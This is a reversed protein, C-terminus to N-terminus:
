GVIKVIEAQVEGTVRVDHEGIFVNVESRIGFDPLYIGPEVSFCTWPLIKRYDHTELNDMNAGAGHVEKGISHGTRHTFYQGYGRQSIYGRAADDVEYGRIEEGQRVRARVLEIGRDRAERVVEFVEQVQTPIEEGCYGVWTVDYYVGDPDDLKAWLDILVVDGWQIQRDQNSEPEYHPNSANANAAVIPGHDSVLGERTFRERIFSKVQYEGVSVGARLKQGILRFAEERIRDVRRAAELHRALNESTWTAEFRQILDAASVVEVGLERVLEVTGADVLSVQPLGCHPSYQMAVRRMGALLHKLGALHEQWSGYRQKSGPLSDLMDPEIRHVLGRPEAESPILYYWRRTVARKPTLGLVRYGLPDRQHHDCFLWGDVGEERLAQQIQDLRM